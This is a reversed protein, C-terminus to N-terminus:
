LNRIISVISTFTPSARTLAWDLEILCEVHGQSKVPWYYSLREGRRRRHGSVGDWGDINEVIGRMINTFEPAFCELM